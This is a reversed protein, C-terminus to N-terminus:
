ATIMHRHPFSLDVRERSMQHLTKDIAARDLGLAVHLIENGAHDFQHRRIELGLRLDVLFGVLHGLDLRAAIRAQIDGPQAGKNALAECLLFVERELSKKIFSVSARTSKRARSDNALSRSSPRTSIVLKGSASRCARSITGCNLSSPSAISAITRRLILEILRATVSPELSHVM